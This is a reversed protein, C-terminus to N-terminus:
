LVFSPVEPPHLLLFYFLFFNHDRDMKRYDFSIPSPFFGMMIKKIVTIMVKGIPLFHEIGKKTNRVQGM